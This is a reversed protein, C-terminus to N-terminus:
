TWSCVEIWVISVMAQEIKNDIAGGASTSYIFLASLIDLELDDSNLATQLSSRPSPISARRWEWNEFDFPREKENNFISTEFQM